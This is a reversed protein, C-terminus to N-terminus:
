SSSKDDFLPLNTSLVKDRNVPHASSGYCWKKLEIQLVSPKGQVLAKGSSYLAVPTKAVGDTVILQYGYAIEKEEIISWDKKHVFACFTDIIIRLNREKMM